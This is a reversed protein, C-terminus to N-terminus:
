VSATSEGIQEATRLERALLRGLHQEFRIADEIRGGATREIGVRIQADVWAVWGALAETGSEALRHLLDHWQWEDPMLSRGLAETRGALERHQPDMGLSRVASPVADAYRAARVLTERRDDALVAAPGIPIRPAHIDSITSRHKNSFTTSGVTLYIPLEGDVDGRAVADTLHALVASTTDASLARGASWPPVLGNPERAPLSRNRSTWATLPDLRRAAATPGADATRHGDHWAFAVVATSDGTPLLRILRAPWTWWSLRGAPTRTLGPIAAPSDTEWTPADGEARPQPPLNLLLLEKVTAVGTSVSLHTSAAVPGIWAGYTRGGTVGRKIGAVDFAQRHLLSRAARGCPLPQTSTLAALNFWMGTQGGLYAPLLHPAPRSYDDLAACQAFPHVPHFLDFRDTWRTLYTTIRAMNLTTAQWAQSWEDMDAPGAAADYLALLVRLVAPAEVPDVAFRLEHARHLLEALGVERPASIAPDHVPLWPQTLLDFEPM